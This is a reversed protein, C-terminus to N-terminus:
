LLSGYKLYKQPTYPTLGYGMDFGMDCRVM